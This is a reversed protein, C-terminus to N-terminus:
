RACKLVPNATFGWVSKSKSEPDSKSYDPFTHAQEDGWANLVDCLDGGAVKDTEEQSLEKVEQNIEKQKDEMISGRETNKTQTFPAETCTEYTSVCGFRGSATLISFKCGSQGRKGMGM